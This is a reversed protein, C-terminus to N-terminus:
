GKGVVMLEAKLDDPAEEWYLAINKGKEVQAWRDGHHDIQFYVANARRPLEQPPVPLHELKVGPLARAILLPLAERAGLKAAVELSSLLTKGDAETELVLYFRNKGEFIKPPLDAAFYTGDYVLAIMYEPGATIEDLLRVIFGQTEAFCRYLDDHRYAPLLKTGDGTEGLATIEESFTSLEAAIQRLVGYANWPHAKGSELLHHLAPIYRNLSRLALLYVMDRAGFTATHIGRSKKYSELQRGRSGIQDRVERLLLSLPESAAVTVCPPAYTESPVIADADRELRLLPVLTYDGLDPVEHEWFLRLVYYLRAVDAEPGQRHLDPVAEADAAAVFRTTVDAVRELDPLVTVNEGLPNWKRLGAYVTLPKDGEIWGEDFTRADLVANDPFSVYTHDPFILEAKEPREVATGSVPAPHELHIVGWFHPQLQRHLPTLLSETFRDDLQFHQPQLFLGQHWYVPRAM